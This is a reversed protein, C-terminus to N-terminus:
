LINTKKNLIDSDVLTLKPLCWNRRRENATASVLKKVTTWHECPTSQLTCSLGFIILLEYSFCDVLCICYSTM